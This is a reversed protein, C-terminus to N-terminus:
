LLSQAHVQNAKGVLECQAPRHAVAGTDPKGYSHPEYSKEYQQDYTAAESKTGDGALSIAHIEESYTM